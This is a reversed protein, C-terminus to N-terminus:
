HRDADASPPAAVAAVAPSVIALLSHEADPLMTSSQQISKTLEFMRQAAVERQQDGHVILSLTESSARSEQTLEESM